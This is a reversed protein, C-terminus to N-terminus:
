QRETATIPVHYTFYKDTTTIDELAVETVNNYLAEPDSESEVSSSPVDDIGVSRLAEGFEAALALFIPRPLRLVPRWTEIVGKLTDSCRLENDKSTAYWLNRIHILKLM